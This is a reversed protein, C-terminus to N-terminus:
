EPKDKIPRIHGSGTPGIMYSLTHGTTASGPNEHIIGPIASNNPKAQKQAQSPAKRLRKAGKPNNMLVEDTEREKATTGVLAATRNYIGLEIDEPLVFNSFCDLVGLAISELKSGQKTMQSKIAWAQLTVASGVLLERMVEDTFVAGADEAQNPEADTM